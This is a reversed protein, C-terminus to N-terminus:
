EWTTNLVNSFFLLSDASISSQNNILISVGRNIGVHVEFLLPFQVLIAVPLIYVPSLKKFLPIKFILLM